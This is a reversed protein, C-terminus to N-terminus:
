GNEGAAHLFAPFEAVGLARLLVDQTDYSLEDLNINRLLAENITRPANAHPELLNLAKIGVAMFDKHYAYNLAMTGPEIRLGLSHHRALRVLEEASLRYDANIEDIDGMLLENAFRNAQKEYDDDDSQGNIEDDMFIADGSLHGLMIHGLEHALDFALSSPHKSNLFLIIAARGEIRTAMGQPKKVGTTQPIHLVPIGCQYCYELLAHLTVTQNEQLIHNRIESALRPVPSQPYNQQLARLATRAIQRAYQAAWELESKHVNIGKRFKVEIPPVVIPADDDYLVSLPIGLGQGLYDLASAYGAPNLAIGDQWWEPLITKVFAKKIGAKTLREYLSFIPNDSPM